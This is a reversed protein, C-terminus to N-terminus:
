RIGLIAHGRAADDFAADLRRELYSPLTATTLLLNDLWRTFEDRLDEVGETLRLKRATTAPHFTRAVAEDIAHRLAIAEDPMVRLSSKARLKRFYRDLLHGLAYVEFARAASSLPALPGLRRLIRRVLLEAGKRLVNRVRDESSPEALAARGDTTLSIGYRSAAEHAVVGRLQLLVRDPLFPLPIAGAALSLGTLMGLRGTVADSGTPEGRVVDADM